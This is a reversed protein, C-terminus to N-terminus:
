PRRSKSARENWYDFEKEFCVGELDSLRDQVYTQADRIAQNYVSPAIEKVFYDLLLGAQLDGIEQDLNEAVYRKISALLQKRSDASLNIAM